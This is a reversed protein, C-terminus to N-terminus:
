INLLWKNSLNVYFDLYDMQLIIVTNETGLLTDPM